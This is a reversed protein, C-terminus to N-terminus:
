NFIIFAIIIIILAIKIHQSTIKNKKEIQQQTIDQHLSLLKMYKTKWYDLRNSLILIVTLLIIIIVIFSWIWPLLIDNNTVVLSTLTNAIHVYVTGKM